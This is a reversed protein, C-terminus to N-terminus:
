DDERERMLTFMDSRGRAVKKERTTGGGLEGLNKERGLGEAGKGRFLRLIREPV